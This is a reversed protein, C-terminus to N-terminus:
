PKRALFLLHTRLFPVSEALRCAGPGIRALLRMLPPLATLSRVSVKWGAFATRLEQETVPRINPNWPNRRRMDYSLFFGGPALVRRIEKYVEERRQASLISSVM